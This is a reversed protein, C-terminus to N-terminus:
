GETHKYSPKAQKPPQPFTDGTAAAWTKLQSVLDERMRQVAPDRALNSMELPDEQLDFLCEVNDYGRRVVLKHRPTVIARWPGNVPSNARAAPAPPPIDPTQNVKGECCLSEVSPPETGGLVTTSLNRGECSAPTSLECISLLTPMLDVSSILTQKEQGPAIRGPLRMLLPVRLSEDEPEGKRYKGHSGALEGHDATFVVLTNEALGSEELYKTLRGMEHDLSECLGFYGALDRMARDRHEDPVNDRLRIEGTEYRQFNKPPRFPTHPPGWSLFLAFPRDQNRKMFRIATDTQAAPEYYPEGDPGLPTGVANGDDDFGWAKHYIHGRNFGEFETFGRRRWGPPVFGPKPPGDLHWKGIYMTAYGEDRYIQPWCVEDPPLQIDNATMGTQHSYRSTLICARNPTCVPNAAYARRWNAGSAALSDLHPTRVVEDSGFGFASGRWQDALVFLLNTPKPRQAAALGATALTATALFERRGVAPVGQM